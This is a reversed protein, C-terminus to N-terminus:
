EEWLEMSIVLGITTLPVMIDNRVDDAIGVHKMIIQAIASIILTLIVFCVRKLITKVEM